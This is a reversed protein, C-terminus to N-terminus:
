QANRMMNQVYHPTPSQAFSVQLQVSCRYCTYIGCYEWLSVFMLWVAYMNQYPPRKSPGLNSNIGIFHNWSQMFSLSNDVWGMEHVRREVRNGTIRIGEGASYNLALLESNLLFDKSPQLPTQKVLEQLNKKCAFDVMIMWLGEGSRYMCHKQPWFFQTSEFLAFSSAAGDGLPTPSQSVLGNQDVTCIQCFCLCM